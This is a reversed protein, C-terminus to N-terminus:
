SRTDPCQEREANVEGGKKKFKENTAIAFAQMFALAKSDSKKETKKQGKKQFLEYPESRYPKPKTGKKAMANLVPSADLIAEYVYMGQLWLDQNRREQKIRAAERYFKVLECDQEWFQEYTMGISLYFPFVENFKETYAFRPAPRQEGGGGENNSPYGSVM